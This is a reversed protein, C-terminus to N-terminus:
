QPPQKTLRELIQNALYVMSMFAFQVLMFILIRDRSPQLLDGLRIMVYTFVPTFAVLVILTRKWEKDILRM